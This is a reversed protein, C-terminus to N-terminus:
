IENNLTNLQESYSMGTHNIAVVATTNDVKLSINKDSPSSCFAKDRKPQLGSAEQQSQKMCQEGAKMLPM